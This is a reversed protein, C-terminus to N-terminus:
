EYYVVAKKRPLIKMIRTNVNNYSIECVLYIKKNERIRIFHLLFLCTSNQRTGLKLYFTCIQTRETFICIHHWGTCNRYKCSNNWRYTEHIQQNMSRLRVKLSRWVKQSDSLYKHVYMCTLTAIKKMKGKNRNMVLCGIQYNSQDLTM